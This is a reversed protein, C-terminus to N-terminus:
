NKFPALDAESHAILDQLTNEAQVQNSLDVELPSASRRTWNPLMEDQAPDWRLAIKSSIPLTFGTGLSPPFPTDGLVFSKGSPADLITVQHWAMSFFVREITEPDIALQSPLIPDNPPRTIVDDMEDLISNEDCSVVHNFIAKAAEPGIGFKSLTAQYDFLSKDYVDAIAVALQKSRAHATRLTDPHRCASFAVFWRLFIQDEQSGVAGAIDLKSMCTAARAEIQSSWRELANSPRGGKDYTTYLFDKSMLSKPSRKKTRNNRLTWVLGDGNSFRRQWFQPVYHQNRTEILDFNGSSTM